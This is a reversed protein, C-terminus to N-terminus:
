MTLFYIIQVAIILITGLVYEKKFKSKYAKSCFILFVLISIAIFIMEKYRVQVSAKVVNVSKLYIFDFLSWSLFVIIVYGTLIYLVTKLAKFDMDIKISTM